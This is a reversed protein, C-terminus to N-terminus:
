VGRMLNQVHKRRAVQLDYQAQYSSKGDGARIEKIHEVLLEYGKIDVQNTSADVFKRFSTLYDDLAAHVLPMHLLERVSPRKDPNKDLLQVLIHKMERSIPKDEDFVLDDKVVARAVEEVPGGDFPVKLTLLEYLIIGLSWVDTKASCPKRNLIEPSVYYIHGRSPGCIPDDVGTEVQKAYRFGGLKVQWKRSLLVDSININLHLINHRHLFEVALCLQCFLLLVSNLSFYENSICRRNIEHLLDKGDMYETLIYTNKEDDYRNIYGVINPHVVNSILLFSKPFCDFENSGSNKKPIMKSFFLQERPIRETGISVIPKCNALDSIPEPPVQGEELIWRYIGASQTLRKVLQKRPMHQESPHRTFQYSPNTAYTLSSDVMKLNNIVRQIHNVPSPFIRDAVPVSQKQTSFMANGFFIHRYDNWPHLACGM